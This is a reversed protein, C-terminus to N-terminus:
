MVYYQCNVGCIAGVYTKTGTCALLKAQVNEAFLLCDIASYAALLKPAVFVFGAFVPANFAQEAAVAV